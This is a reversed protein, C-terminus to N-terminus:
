THQITKPVFLCELLSNPCLFCLCVSGVITVRAACARASSVVIDTCM